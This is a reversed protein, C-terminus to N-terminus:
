PSVSRNEQRSKLKGCFVGWFRSNQPQNLIAIGSIAKALEPPLWGAAKAYAATDYHDPYASNGYALIVDIKLGAVRAAQIWNKAKSPIRYNGPTPELASWNFDDRIWGAGSKAILPMTLEPSWNQEFHTCVGIRDDRITEEARLAPQLTSFVFLGLGLMFRLGSTFRNKCNLSLM